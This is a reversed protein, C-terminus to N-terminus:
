FTQVPCEEPGKDFRLGRYVSHRLYGEKTTTLYTVSCVLLPRVWRTRKIEERPVSITPANVEIAKLESLLMEAERESLGTGVKGQYVYEGGRRGALVLSGLGRGTRGPQFGCIVLEAERTHRFKMWNTSRRGPLYTGELKKAMAGELQERVCANYFDVGDNLIYQSLMLQDNDPSVMGSLIIKRESLPYSMVPIGGAYLVDFVIFIAPYNSASRKVTGTNIIRGRSQLRAFSPKGNDFVVIEGDLIAPQRAVMKHMGALEPFKDTLDVSRRSRITTKGDLYALGRYGDWKIEYLYEASNFPDSNVALMPQILPLQEEIKM